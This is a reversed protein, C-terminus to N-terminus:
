GPLRMLRAFEGLEAPNIDSVARFNMGDQNWGEVNYGQVTGDAGAVPKGPWVFVDILHKDRGYVLAAVPRGALYDLRGGLLPFGDGTHIMMAANGKLQGVLAIAETLTGPTDPNLANAFGLHSDSIQVFGLGSAAEAAAAPGILASRPVGGSVTWLVGAGAWVMCELVTRRGTKDADM